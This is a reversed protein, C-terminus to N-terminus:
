EAGGSAESDHRYDELEAYDGNGIYRFREPHRQPDECVGNIAHAPNTTHMCRESDQMKCMKHEYRCGNGDCLYLVNRVGDPYDTPNYSSEIM